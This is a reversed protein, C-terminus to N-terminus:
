VLHRSVEVFESWPLSKIWACLLEDGEPSDFPIWVPPKTKYVKRFEKLRVDVTYGRFTPLVRIM